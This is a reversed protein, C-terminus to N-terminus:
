PRKINLVADVRDTEGSLIAILQKAQARIPVWCPDNMARLHAERTNPVNVVAGPIDAVNELLRKIRDKQQESLQADVTNLVAQGNSLADDKIEWAVNFYGLLKCQEEADEALVLLVKHFYHYNNVYSDEDAPESM